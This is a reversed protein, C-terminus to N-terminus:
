SWCSCVSTGCSGWPTRAVAHAKRWCTGYGDDDRLGSSKLVLGV